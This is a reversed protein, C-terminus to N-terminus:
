AGDGVLLRHERLQGIFAHVDREATQAALSYEDILIQVLQAHTTGDSLAQWLRAASRNAGLYLERPMDLAVVEGDVEVWHVESARLQLREPM